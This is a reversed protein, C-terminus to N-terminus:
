GSQRPSWDVKLDTATEFRAALKEVLSREADELLVVDGEPTGIVVRYYTDSHRGGEVRVPWINVHGVMSLPVDVTVTGTLDRTRKVLQRATMDLEIREAHVAIFLGGVPLVIGIFVIPYDSLTAEPDTVVQYAMIALVLGAVLTAVGVVNMWPDSTLVLREDTDEKIEM